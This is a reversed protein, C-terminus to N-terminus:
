ANATVEEAVDEERYAAELDVEGAEVQKNFKERKTAGIFGFVGSAALCIASLVLWVIMFVYSYLEFVRGGTTLTNNYTMMPYIFIRVIQVIAAIWVLFSFSKHFNKLEQSALFVGLLIALNLIVSIGMMFTYVYTSGLMKEAFSGEIDGVQQGYVTLFYLFEFVLSLLAFNSAKSNTKYRMIDNEIIRDNASLQQKM